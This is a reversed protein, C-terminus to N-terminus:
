QNRFNVKKLVEMGDMKPMKIDCLILNFKTDIIKKVGDKGDFAEHVEFLNEKQLIDKVVRRISHDDEIIM